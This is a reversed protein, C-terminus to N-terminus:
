KCKAGLIEKWMKKNISMNPLLLHAKSGLFLCVACLFFFAFSFPSFNLDVKHGVFINLAVSIKKVDKWFFFYQFFFPASFETSHSFPWMFWGFIFRNWLINIKLLVKLRKVTSIDSHKTKPDGLMWCRVPKVWFMTGLM